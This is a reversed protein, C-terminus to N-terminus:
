FSSRSFPNNSEVASRLVICLFETNNCCRLIHLKRRLCIIHRLQLVDLCPAPRIVLESLIKLNLRRCTHEVKAFPTYEIVPTEYRVPKPAHISVPELTPELFHLTRVDHNPLTEHHDPPRQSGNMIQIRVNSRTNRDAQPSPISITFVTFLALALVLHESCPREQQLASGCPSSSRRRMKPVFPGLTM